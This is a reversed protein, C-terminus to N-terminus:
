RKRGDTRGRGPHENPCFHRPRDRSVWSLRRIEGCRLISSQVGARRARPRVFENPILPDTHRGNYAQSSAATTEACERDGQRQTKQQGRDSSLRRRFRMVMRLMTRRRVMGPVPRGRGAVRSMPRRRVGLLGRRCLRPAGRLSVVMRRRVCGGLAGRRSPLGGMTAM